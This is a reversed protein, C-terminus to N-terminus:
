SNALGVDAPEDILVRLQPRQVWLGVDVEDPVAVARVHEGLRDRLIVRDSEVFHDEGSTDHLGPEWPSPEFSTELSDAVIPSRVIPDDGGQWGDELVNGSEEGNAAGAVGAERVIERPAGLALYKAM